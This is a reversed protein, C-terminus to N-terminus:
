GHERRKTAGERKGAVEGWGGSLDASLFFSNTSEKQARERPCITKLWSFASASSALSLGRYFVDRLQPPQGTGFPPQTQFGNKEQSASSNNLRHNGLPAPFLAYSSGCSEQGTAGQKRRKKPFPEGKFEVLWFPLRAEWPWQADSVLTTNYKSKISNTM